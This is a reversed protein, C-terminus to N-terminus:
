CAHCFHCLYLSRRVFDGKSPIHLMIISQIGCKILGCSIRECVCVCLGCVRGVMMMYSYVIKTNTLHVHQTKQQQTHKRVYEYSEPMNKM